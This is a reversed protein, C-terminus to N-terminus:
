LPIVNSGVGVLWRAENGANWIAPHFIRAALKILDRGTSKTNQSSSRYDYLSQSAEYFNHKTMQRKTHEASSCFGVEFSRTLSMMSSILFLQDCVGLVRQM